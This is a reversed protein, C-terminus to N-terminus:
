EKTVTEDLNLILSAVMTMAAHESNSLQPDRAKAGVDLLRKAAPENAEYKQLFERHAEGLTVAEIESPPRGLLLLFGREISAQADDEQLMREALFRSAEVFTVNNMMTLAQLPTNTREKRVVCVEREAANFNLMTPPPITRRWYTYLSRRYLNQGSDQEYTNNSISRWIKPPMYPKASPGGIHEYLLGSAALAQDRLVFPHLRFRPGRALMRNEPDKALHESTVRSSRQYTASQVILKQIVQQDWGSEILTVALWDLLEPHSPLEGQLGFNESTRVLGVGFFQQWIRNVAVRATLPNDRSVLWRALELRNTPENTSDSPPVTVGKRTSGTSRVLFEPVGPRLTQSKDPQNYQGRQLLYTERPTKMEAMVMVTQPSGAQPRKLGNGDNGERAARLKVPEPTRAVDEEPLLNPWSQPVDVFPPSNGNNPGVGWEPVNNFYAFLEYYEQQTLPDYKHDHCRACGITLGLIATGLTDVRDVVNEVHWEAPISGDESNIRHNRCFGTAVQQKFTAKPLMDGALQETLFQDYPMNQNFAMIVWDRWVHQYRYRDNQYGDTDAYRALDLWTRAMHEGYRPSHLLREVVHEFADPTDDALFDRVEKPSPPLGTLDLTARRLLTAKDAPPAPTMNQERLKAVVFHDIENLTVGDSALTAASVSHAHLPPVDHLVPPTFAWHSSYEAGQEIWKNLVEVQEESLQKKSGPPPMVEDPSQATIRRLLESDGHTFVTAAEDAVDLRLDAERTNEDPGHCAFCKDALIPQVDKAFDIERAFSVDCISVCICLTIIHRSM